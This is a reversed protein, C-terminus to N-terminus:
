WLRNYKKLLYFYVEKIIASIPVAIVMGIIGFFHGFVLLSVITTVPHVNVSKKMIIPNIINGEITQIIFLIVAIIIGFSTSKTFAVLIPLSAGIYPGFIPIINTIGCIFGFLLAGDLKFIYFLITSLIFVIFSSFLTGKVYSRLITNINFLLKYTSKKVITKVDIIINDILLYFSIVLGILFSTIGDYISMCTNPIDKELNIIFDNIICLIEDKINKSLKINDLFSNFMNPFIKIFENFEIIFKPVLTIILIYILFVILIYIFILSFIKNMGKDELYSTIPRLLWAIIIGIFLSSILKLIILIYNLFNIKNLLLIFIYIILLLLLININKIM